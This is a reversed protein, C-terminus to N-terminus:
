GYDPVFEPVWRRKAEALKLHIDAGQLYLAYAQIDGPGFGGRGAAEAIGTPLTAALREAMEIHELPTWARSSDASTM